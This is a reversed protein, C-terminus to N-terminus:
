GLMPCPSKALLLLALDAYFNVIRMIVSDVGSAYQMNRLLLTSNNDIHFQYKKNLYNEYIENVIRVTVKNRFKGSFFTLLLMFINKLLFIVIVFFFIYYIRYDSNIFGFYKENWKPDTISKFVPLLSGISIIELSASILQTFILLFFLIKEGKSFVNFFKKTLQFQIM